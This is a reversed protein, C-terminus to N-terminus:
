ATAFLLWFIVAIVALAVLGWIWALNTTQKTGKIFASDEVGDPLDTDVEVRKAKEQLEAAIKKQLDSRSDQQRLYLSM